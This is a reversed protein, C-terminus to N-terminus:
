YSKSISCKFFYISVIFSFACRSLRYYFSLLALEFFGDAAFFVSSLM